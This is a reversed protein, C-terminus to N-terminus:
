VSLDRREFWWAGAIFLLVAGAAVVANRYWIGSEGNVIEATPLLTYITIYKLKELKEGMNSLMQMLFFLIPLGAGFAYYNKAESCVCAALFTIGCVLFWMLLTSGNLLIYRKVDLEGPFFMEAGLIGVITVAAMLITMWLLMSLLQTCIIRRRSNPTALLNAISGNDIYDMVLKNGLIVIFILPFLLMLFGYLYIQMWELLSTAVGTMGVASMMQPMLKQYENLMDALEPNYMYIIVLIYMCLVAFLILFPKICASMNRKLLPYSIM